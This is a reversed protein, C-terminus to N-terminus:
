AMRKKVEALLEDDTADTLTVEEPPQNFNLIERAWNDGIRNGYCSKNAFNRHPVIRDPSIEFRTLIDQMLAKLALKQEHTPLTADFNGALCIGISKDNYGITHAGQESEERGQTTKGDKEIFYHYGIKGWGLSKHYADVIEFTHHSTDALPDSATGGTHHVILYEPNNPTVPVRNDNNLLERTKTGVIGDPILGYATQFDKVATETIVGFYGTNQPYTFFGLEKLLAQLEVVEDGFDGVKLTLTFIFKPKTYPKDSFTFQYKEIIPKIPCFIEITESGAYNVGVPNNNADVILSSSDGGASFHRNANECITQGVFKAINGDYNVTVTANTLLVKSQTVGTTRGSKKVVEGVQATRPTDSIAGIGEQFLPKVDIDKDVAVLGVDHANESGDFKLTEFMDTSVGVRDKNRGGDNPSPQRIEDGVEAGKWHPNMCHTNMLLYPKGDKYVIAGLTCATGKEWICSLGGYVPREKETHVADATIEGVEIVDTIEGDIEAPILDEQSLEDATVKSKVLVVVAEDGDINKRGKAVGVVNKKALLEDGKERIVKNINEAM